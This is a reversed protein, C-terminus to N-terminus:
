LFKVDYKEFINKIKKSETLEMSSNKVSNDFKLNELVKLIITHEFVDLKDNKVLKKGVKDIFEELKENEKELLKRQMEEDALKQKLEEYEKKIKEFENIDIKKSCLEHKKSKKHHYFATRENTQYNCITCEFM